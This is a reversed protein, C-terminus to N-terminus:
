SAVFFIYGLFVGVSDPNEGNRPAFNQCVFLFISFPHKEARGLITGPCLRIIWSLCM